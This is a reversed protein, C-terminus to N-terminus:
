FCGWLPQVNPSKSICAKFGANIKKFQLSYDGTLKKFLRIGIAHSNVPLDNVMNNKACFVAFGSNIACMFLIQELVDM